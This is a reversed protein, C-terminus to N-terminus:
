SLSDRLRRTWSFDVFCGNQETGDSWKRGGLRSHLLTKRRIGRERRIGCRRPADRQAAAGGRAGPVRAAGGASGGAGSHGKRGRGTAPFRLLSGVCVTCTCVREYTAEGGAPEVREGETRRDREAGRGRGGRVREWDSGSGM